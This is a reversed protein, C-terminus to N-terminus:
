KEASCKELENILNRYALRPELQMIDAECVKEIEENTDMLEMAQLLGVCKGTDFETKSQLFEVWKKQQEDSEVDIELTGTEEDDWVTVTKGHKNSSGQTNEKGVSKLTDKTGKEKDTGEMQDEDGLDNAEDDSNHNDKDDNDDDGKGDDM